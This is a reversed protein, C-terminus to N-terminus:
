SRTAARYEPSIVALIEDLDEVGEPIPNEPDNWHQRLRMGYLREDYVFTCQSCIGTEEGHEILPVYPICGCTWKPNLPM